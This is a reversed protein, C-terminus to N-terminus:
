GNFGLCQPQFTRRYGAFIIRKSVPRFQVSYHAGGGTVGGGEVVVVVVVEEEEELAQTHMFLKIDLTPRNKSFEKLQRVGEKSLKNDFLWLYELTSNEMLAEKLLEAGKDTVFNDRLRLTSFLPLVPLLRRLGQANVGQADLCLTQLDPCLQLLFALESWNSNALNCHGMGDQSLLKLWAQLRQPLGPDQAEYLCHCVNLQREPSLSPSHLQSHLLHLVFSPSACPLPVCSALYSRPEDHFLGNLIFRTKPVLLGSLFRCFLDLHGSQHREGWHLAKKIRRRLLRQPRRLKGIVSILQMRRAPALLGMNMKLGTFPDLGSLSELVYYLAALFEQISTHIFQFNKEYTLSSRDEKLIEVLLARLLNDSDLSFVALDSSDFVFRRELLGKFALAGLCRLKTKAEKLVQPADQLRDLHVGSVCGRVHFLLITKLFCCYIETVTAPRSCIVQSNSTNIVENTENSSIHNQVKVEESAITRSESGKLASDSFLCSTGKHLATSVIWCFAPIHCMLQLPKHSSVFGWVGAANESSSCSKVFYQRQQDPSFGLVSYFQNVLLQPVKTVAHPRSTLLITIDPLLIRKILNVVIAGVSLDREPDSCKPTRDFDLPFCFEDLGDLILLLQDQKSTMLEPLFSKLHSYHDSLLVQLSLSETILSLERFSLSFIIKQTDRDVAWEQILRKIVTTKGSGAVGSLLAVGDGCDSLLNQYIDNFSCTEGHGGVNVRGARFADGVVSTEHQLYVPVQCGEHKSFTIDTFWDAKPLGLTSGLYNGPTHQRALIDKHRQLDDSVSDKLSLNTIRTLSSSKFKSLLFLFAQCPEEGRGQLVDLLTRMCDREGLLGGGKIFSLDEETVAGLEFLQDLLPHLHKSWNEVLEVRRNQLQVSYLEVAMLNILLSVRKRDEKVPASSSVRTRRLLKVSLHGNKAKAVLMESGSTFDIIGERGQCVTFTISEPSININNIKDACIAVKTLTEIVHDSQLVADGKQKNDECVVHLVFIGDSLSSVSIGKLTSYDISQKLKTEEVIVASNGTLLLQRTRPKYGRRDYKTVPVAYKIKDSGLAQLVKPNIDEGNLRTGVFLKAVSQPYNDKKDKFIESAVSKQELQHKWEPNISKCYKWVMNQMCLKRLHESAETLAPPPTPWSKDLVSKPLSRHLKMLFSYRVYDLFYENEPCRPQHRYMFGKIFRRIVDAAQRRRLARRRALIGRWWAQILIALSHKRVELADETAFLTKPFRIFIKTRGLKYEEPKYGLHRALTSVGDILRGDWSPWTDPCLSKYRQLFVEYRRRYAFGARRVRLNEMLGLYKVQHRILVDDFRGAQKADNPKICRVYSPEKSMLIEMLKALSSKFQTATTEPRKKDTLEERDFCQNLIKNESMCMVEKLNRFLLDNNKDLFGNVNYNVEGAYHLLRFEDRGMVKRTKGDALKHSNNQFVEFGYIDLLGIVSTSKGSSFNEKFSLSDNIKNVLWTFTRGYIAKSLADRASSAQEQNLPSMLEEEKATIKRHTLAEKLVISDVGLLRTLYKIQTDVTIYASGGDESTYQINGLHLVSAIINLLEEVEDDSFGIVSLAKIVMKWDNRDNISSVKPCNGKFDFQIDMYKGFRSSNDNRLTKANGFAELVPNSQLLRDKVTQVQESAPCTIAYYQLVKKSAETKGAGSEGSILICQDRRETRMSRYANDAVAYIHPSVEYFNVGRYREMHQKTYIELEKYPNVSVLVSGIYTYILNEKFRKRLNDIFAVESNFNELLVFDQVGVRDRATLASEMMARVGDSGVVKACCNCYSEGNKGPSLIIEGTPVLQIKLEMM